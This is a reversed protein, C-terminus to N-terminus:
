FLWPPYPMRHHTNTAQSQNFKISKAKEFFYGFKCIQELSMAPSLFDLVGIRELWHAHGV